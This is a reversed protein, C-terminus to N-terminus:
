KKKKDIYKKLERAVADPCSWAISGVDKEKTIKFEGKKREMHPCRIQECADIAGELDDVQLLRSVTRALAEINSRCTALKAGYCFIEYPNEKDDENVTIFLSGCMDYRATEGKLREPRQKV